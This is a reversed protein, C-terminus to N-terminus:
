MYVPCVRKKPIFPKEKKFIYILGLEIGGRRNTAAVFDSTNVHYSIGFQWQKHDYGVRAILADKFRMYIGANFSQQENLNLLYNMKVGAVTEQFKGQRSYKIEPNLMLEANLPFTFSLFSVSRLDLRVDAQQFFSVRPGNLHSFSQGLTLVQQQSFHYQFVLGANLDFYTRSRMPFNEGSPLAPNYADGDFQSDFTLQATKFGINAIGPQIGLSLRMVSDSLLNKHYALPIYLQTIGYRSDGSVDHNFLIGAGTEHSQIQKRLDGMLSTTSYSVPVATWQSRYIGGFRYDGDFLGAFAPNINLPSFNLQSFHIDQATLVPCSGLCLLFCYALISKKM